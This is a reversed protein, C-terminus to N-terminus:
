KLDLEFPALRHEGGLSPLPDVGIEPALDAAVNQVRVLEDLIVPCSHLIAVCLGDEIAIEVLQDM